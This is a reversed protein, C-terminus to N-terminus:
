PALCIKMQFDLEAYSGELEMGVLGQQQGEPSPCPSPIGLSALVTQLSTGLLQRGQSGLPCALKQRFFQGAAATQFQM